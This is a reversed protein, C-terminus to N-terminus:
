CCSPCTAKAATAGCGPLKLDTTPTSSRIKARVGLVLCERVMKGIVVGDEQTEWAPVGCGGRGM